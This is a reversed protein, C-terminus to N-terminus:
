FGEFVIEAEIRDLEASLRALAASQQEDLTGTLLNPGDDFRGQLDFFEEQGDRQRIFKYRADRLARRDDRYPPPGSPGFQELYIFERSSPTDPDILHPLLSVGDIQLRAGDPSELAALPVGVLDAVTSFIDATHVLAASESGPSGVIPSVVILPVNVGGEYLTGKCHKQSLPPLIATGPTGNDGVFIITTRALTASDMSALLRGIESDMAEVMAHYRDVEPDDETLGPNGHLDPPPVHLPTHPANFAVWLLWPSAMTGIRGIADDVTDTTAYTDTSAPKGNTVKEWHDYTPQVGGLHFAAEINAFSGAYWNFGTLGPHDYGSPGSYSALHWKGVLSHDYDFFESRDLLEPLSLAQLPLEFTSKAVNFRKGVGMRRGWRGTLMSARTPSCTSYAYANRFLIGQAALGDINPTAPRNPHEGYAGVKDTGLDDAILLLINGGLPTGSLRGAGVPDDGGCGALGLVAAVVAVVFPIRM